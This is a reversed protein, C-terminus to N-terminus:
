ENSLKESLRESITKWQFRLSRLDGPSKKTNQSIEVISYNSQKWKNGFGGTGMGFMQHSYWAGIMMMMMIMLSTGMIYHNDNYSISVVDRTWIGSSVSQIECLVLVM